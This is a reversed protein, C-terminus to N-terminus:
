ADQVTVTNAPPTNNVYLGSSLLDTQFLFDFHRYFTGDLIIRARRMLATSNDYPTDVFFRGQPQLLAGLHFKYMEAEEVTVIQEVTGGSADTVLRTETREPSSVRLGRNDFTILPTRELKERLADNIGGSSATQQKAELAAVKAQLADLQAQLEALNQARLPAAASVTSALALMATLRPLAPRRKRLPQPSIGRVSQIM